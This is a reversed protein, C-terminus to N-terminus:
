EAAINRGPEGLQRCSLDVRRQQGCSAEVSQAFMAGAMWEGGILPQRCGALTGDCHFASGIIKAGAFEQGRDIIGGAAGGNDGLARQKSCQASTTVAWDRHQGTAIAICNRHLGRQEAGIARLPDISLRLKCGTIAAAWRAKGRLEEGAGNRGYCHM